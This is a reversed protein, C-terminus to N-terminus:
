KMLLRRGLTRRNARAIRWDNASRFDIANPIPHPTEALVGLADIIPLRGLVQREYIAHGDRQKRAVRV